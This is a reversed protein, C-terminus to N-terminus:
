REACNAMCRISWANRRAGASRSRALIQLEEETQELHRDSYALIARHAAVRAGPLRYGQPTSIIEEGSARLM